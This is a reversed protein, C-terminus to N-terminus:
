GMRVRRRFALATLAFTLASFLAAALFGKLVVDAEFGFLFSRAAEVVYTMPNLSVAKEFWGTMLDRPLASPTLFLLPFFIIFTSQTARVSGTALAVAISVAAFGIGFLLTLALLGVSGIVPNSAFRVGIVFGFLLLVLSYGLVAFMEGFLNGVVLSSRHAPTLSLKDWYGGAIDLVLANGGSTSAAAFLISIPLQFTAYNAIGLQQEAVDGLAGIQVVFFFVPIILAFIFLEPERLIGRIARGTIALVDSVLGAPAALTQPEGTRTAGPARGADPAAASVIGEKRQRRAGQGPAQGDEGQGDQHAAAMRGGTAALFVDDLTPRSVSVAGFRVGAKDLGRILVAINQPGDPVFLTYGDRTGRLEGEPLDGNAQLDIIATRAAGTEREEVALDIVDAGIEAKLAAPTGQRVIQGHDIIAVRDALEDAEELYQTTLFITAGFRERLERIRDWILARSLPDLGTTPEDLFLVRPRHLLASALDLRRKMGGSFTQIRRDIADTLGVLETM